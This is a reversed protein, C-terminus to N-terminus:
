NGTGPGLPDNRGGQQDRHENKFFKLGREQEERGRMEDRDTLRSCTRCLSVCM